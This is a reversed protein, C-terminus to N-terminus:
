KKVIKMFGIIQKGLIEANFILNAHTDQDLYHEDLAIDVCAVVEELSSLATHLFRAFDKDTSRNSGEAINLLISNVARRIQDILAFREDDPFKSSTNYILTRFVRADKYVRFDRFRFLM